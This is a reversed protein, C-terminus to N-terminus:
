TSAPIRPSSLMRPSIKISTLNISCIDQDYSSHLWFRVDVGEFDVTCDGSSSFQVKCGLSQVARNIAESEKSARNAVNVAKSRLQKEERLEATQSEMAIM